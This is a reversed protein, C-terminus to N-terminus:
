RQPVRATRVTRGLWLMLGLLTVTESTVLVIDSTTPPMTGAFISSALMAASCALAASLMLATILGTLKLASM